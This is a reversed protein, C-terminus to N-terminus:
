VSVASLLQYKRALKLPVGRRRFCDAVQWRLINRFQELKIVGATYSGRLSRYSKHFLDDSELISNCEDQLRQVEQQQVVREVQLPITINNIPVVRHPRHQKHAKM